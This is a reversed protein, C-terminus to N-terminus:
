IAAFALFVEGESHTTQRVLRCGAREFERIILDPSEFYSHFPDVAGRPVEFVTYDPYIRYRRVWYGLRLSERADQLWKRFRERLPKRTDSMWVLVRGERRVVRRSERITRALDCVHDLSTGFIVADVAHDRIPMLESVGVIRYGEYSPGDLPDIGVFRYRSLDSFQLYGALPMAGCGIDLVTGEAVETQIFERFRRVDPRDPLSVSTAALLNYSVLGNNNLAKNLLYKRRYMRFLHKDPQTRLRAPEAEFREGCQPCEVVGQSPLDLPRRCVFCMLPIPPSTM